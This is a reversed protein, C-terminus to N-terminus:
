RRPALRLEAGLKVVWRLRTVSGVPVPFLRGTTGEYVDRPHLSQHRIVLESGAEVYAGMWTASPLSLLVTQRFTSEPDRGQIRLGELDGESLEGRPLQLIESGLTWRIRHGLRVKDALDIDAAVVLVGDLSVHDVGAHEVLNGEHAELL